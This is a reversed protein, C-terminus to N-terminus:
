QTHLKGGPRLELEPLDTVLGMHDFSVTGPSGVERGGAERPHGSIPIYTCKPFDGRLGHPTRVQSYCMDAGRPPSPHLSGTRVFSRALSGGPSGDTAKVVLSSTLRDVDGWM